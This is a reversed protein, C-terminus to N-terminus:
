RRDAEVGRDARRDLHGARQAVRSVTVREWGEELLVARAAELVDRRTRLVRPDVDVDVVGVM